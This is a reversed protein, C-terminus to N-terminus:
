VQFGPECLKILLLLAYAFNSRDAVAGFVLLVM